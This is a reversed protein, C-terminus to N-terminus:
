RHSELKKSSVLKGHRKNISAATAKSAKLDKGNDDLDALVLEKRMKKISRDQKLLEVYRQRDM